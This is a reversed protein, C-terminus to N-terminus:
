DMAEAWVMHGEFGLEAAMKRYRDRYDRYATQDGKAKALQARLQQLWIENLVFGPDTPVEALRDVAVQAERVDSDGGRRLLAEVYVAVAFATWICGGSALLDDVVKQSLAIAGDLDGSRAKDAAINMEAVTLANKSFGSNLSAERIDSLLRLGAEREAGDRHILIVGRATRAVNLAFDDGSQAAMAETETADRVVTADPLLMGNPIAFTYSAYMVGTRFNPDGTWTRYFEISQRADDKWGAVGLCSRAICRYATAFPFPSGGFESGKTVDGEALDIVWQALRLLEAMEGTEYKTALSIPMMAVTLSPDGISELLRIYETALQSAERRRATLIRKMIPGSMGMALSHQDGAAVCLTRLEDFAEEVFGGEMRYSMGCLRARPAIRMSPRAADDEPLQDAVRAARQWSTYSAVTDRSNLWEAARMHWQFAEHLDGAAERHEAILAANEDASTPDRSEIVAALSRHAQVRHSKLQSEYAVTRILPHRFAYEPSATFRVQDVLESQMLSAVDNKDIVRTLLDSDFRSGIVSAANLTAKAIPDLRDIRAGITAQLTPPVDVDAIDGSLVYSGRHGRLVGREVLDRVMEEAFFPNGVAREAIQEALGDVSPHSGVLGGILDAVHAGSLPRLTFSQGGSVSALAGRYEPRHTIMSLSATQPIVALFDVLMSESVEDIWQADEVVYIAPESRVLAASNILTTLRRRRADPAIEPLTTAANGIGLLDDLLLLDDADSDSFQEHVLTRAEEADLEDIGMGARLLRSLAHFPIESAHSECHTIFVPIGRGKAIEATERVLRSKGIGPLGAITVVCGAGGVAEDIIATITNLEWTRGVLPSEGRHRSQHEVVALLRRAQVPTNSGKIHVQESEGLVVADEVLRATSESVMVGGPPAVSEMRQAMGVQEGITTYSPSTSGIEGAVVQGSNLGVRLKLTIQEREDIQTALRSAEAQIDLAALCARFAHDELTAPAGFVAMIGDGTFQSLTGGYRRVVSASRDLLDAMIDRLREPGVAAAIDMSRVVDAFLITVQKYEAPKRSSVVAAGCENCFKANPPLGTGCAACTVDAATV